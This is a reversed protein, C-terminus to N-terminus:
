KKWVFDFGQKSNLKYIHEVDSIHATTGDVFRLFEGETKIVNKFNLKSSNIVNLAVLDGIHILNILDDSQDIIRYPLLFMYLAKTDKKYFNLSGTTNTEIIYKQTDIIQNGKLLLYRKM